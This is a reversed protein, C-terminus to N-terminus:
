SEKAPVAAIMRSVGAIARRTAKRGWTIRSGNATVQAACIPVSGIIAVSKWTKEGTAGIALARVRGTSGM